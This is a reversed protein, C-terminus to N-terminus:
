GDLLLCWASRTGAHVLRSFWNWADPMFQFAEPSEDGTYETWFRVLEASSPSLGGLRANVAESEATQACLLPNHKEILPRAVPANNKPLDIGSEKLWEALIVLVYGNWAFAEFGHPTLAARMGHHDGRECCAAAREMASAPLLFGQAIQSIEDEARWLGRQAVSALGRQASVSDFRPRVPFFRM